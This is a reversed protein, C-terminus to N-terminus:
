AWRFNGSIDVLKSRKFIMIYHYRLSFRVGVEAFTDHNNIKESLKLVTFLKLYVASRLRKTKRPNRQCHCKFVFRQLAWGKLMTPRVIYGRRNTKATQHLSLPKTWDFNPESSGLVLTKVYKKKYAHLHNTLCWKSHLCRQPRSM